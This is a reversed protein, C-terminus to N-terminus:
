PFHGKMKKMKIPDNARVSKRSCKQRSWNETILTFEVHLTRSCRTQDFVEPNWNQPGRARVFKKNASQPRGVYNKKQEACRNARIAGIRTAFRRAM